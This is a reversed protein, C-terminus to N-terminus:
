LGAKAMSIWLILPCLEQITKPNLYTLVLDLALELDLEFLTECILGGESRQSGGLGVWTPAPLDVM